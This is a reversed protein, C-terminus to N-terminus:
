DLFADTEADDRWAAENARVIEAITKGEAEGVALLEAGSSFAFPLKVNTQPLECGGEVVAGGGISYWFTEYPEGDAYHAV